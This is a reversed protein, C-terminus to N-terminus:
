KELGRSASIQGNLNSMKRQLALKSFGKIFRQYYRALGLFSRVEKVNNSRPWKFVVDVMGPDVVLGQGSMVHELFRVQELWFGCKSFKIFLKKM